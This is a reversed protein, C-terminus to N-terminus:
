DDIYFNKMFQKASSNFHISNFKILKNLKKSFCYPIKDIFEFVKKGNLYNFYQDEANINHDYTSDDLISMMEGVKGPGGGVDSHYHFYEFLTMDCVGGGLNYKQRIFYHSSIKEFAYSNKNYYTEYLFKCFNNIGVFNFYSSVPACRHLLTIDYQNYKEYEKNVDIYLLVDSDIYFSTEIKHTNMYEQLIFWRLFCFLEFDHPNTSLHVYNKIFNHYNNNKCNEINEWSFNLHEINPNVDSILIVRNNKLAQLISYKLYEPYGKHIIIVPIM